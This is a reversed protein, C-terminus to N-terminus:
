IRGTVTIVTRGPIVVWAGDAGRAYEAAPVTIAGPLSTFLGTVEDYTYDTGPTWSVGDRDAQLGHLIPQFRDELAVSEAAAAPTNGSNEITFTYTLTDPARAADMALDKVIRLVAAAESSVVASATVAAPLGTIAATNVIEEGQAPPAFVTVQAEYALLVSGGAPVSIGSIVLPPGPAAAPAAQPLGNVLMRLSDPTYALPYLTAGQVDYGGLDDTLTLGTLETTGPNLLSLLYTVTGGPAYAADVPTKTLVLADPLTGTVTNSTVTVGGYRLTAFNSFSAM